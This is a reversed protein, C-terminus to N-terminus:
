LFINGECLMHRQRRDMEGENGGFVFFIATVAPAKASYATAAGYLVGMTFTLILFCSFRSLTRIIEM